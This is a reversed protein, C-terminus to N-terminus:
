ENKGGKYKFKYGKISKRTGDAVEYIRAHHIGTKKSAYYISKYEAVKNNNLDYQVVPRAKTTRVRNLNNM